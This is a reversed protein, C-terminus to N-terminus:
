SRQRREAIALAEGIAKALRRDRAEPTRYYFIGLLHGRRQSSSMRQWGELARPDRAFAAKLIPPLEREADMTALLREAIQESRRVRASPSKPQSIWDGIWKRISYNLKDYWRRLSRDESLARHLEAPVVAKREATDPELRFQATDGPAANAGAQMRKNVLLYHYGKGTPFLSTRFAFGNIEGQVKLMGRTGWVKPVDLPIRAIVWGLNSPMRELAATFSKAVRRPKPKPKM